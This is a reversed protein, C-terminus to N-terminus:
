QVIWVGKGTRCAALHYRASRDAPAALDEQFERGTGSGNFVLQWLGVYRFKQPIYSALYGKGM